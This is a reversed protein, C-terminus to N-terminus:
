NSGGKKIEELTKFRKETNFKTNKKKSENFMSIKLFNAVEEINKKTLIEKKNM